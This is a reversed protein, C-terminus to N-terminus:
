ANLQANFEKDRFDADSGLVLDLKSKGGNVTGGKGGNAVYNEILAKAAATEDATPALAGGRVPKDESIKVLDGYSAKGDGNYLAKSTSLITMAQKVGAASTSDIARILEAQRAPNGESTKMAFYWEPTHTGDKYFFSPDNASKKNYADKDTKSIGGTTPDAAHAPPSLKLLDGKTFNDGAGCLKAKAGPTDFIAKAALQEPSGTPYATQKGSAIAELTTWSVNSKDSTFLLSSALTKADAATKAEAATPAPMTTTSAVAATRDASFMGMEKTNFDADGRLIKDLASGGGKGGNAAYNNVLCTAAAIDAATLPPAGRSVPTGAAIKVLDAYSAKSDGNFLAASTSLATAANKVSSNNTSDLAATLNVQRAPNGEAAKLANDWAPTHTGNKYFFSPDDAKKGNYANKDTDSLNGTKPDPDHSVPILKLLDAKRFTTGSGCLREQTYPSDMIAKAAIQVPSGPPFESRGGNAISAFVSADVDANDDSFLISKALTDVSMALNPAPTAPPKTDVSGNTAPTNPAVTIPEALGPASLVWSSNRPETGGAPVNGSNSRPTTTDSYKPDGVTNNSANLANMAGLNAPSLFYFAADKAEQPAEPDNVVDRLSAATIKGSKNDAFNEYSEQVCTLAKQYDAQASSRPAEGNSNTQNGVPNNLAKMADRNAPILFYRAVDKAEQPAAPDNIVEQLSKQTINGSKSDAFNEYNEQVFTLAERYNIKPSARGSANYDSESGTALPRAGGYASGSYTGPGGGAYRPTGSSVPCGFGAPDGTNGPVAAPSGGSFLSPPIVIFSAGNASYRMVNDIAAQLRINGLSTSPATAAAGESAGVFSIASPAAGTTNVANTM